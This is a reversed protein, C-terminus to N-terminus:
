RAVKMCRCGCNSFAQMSIVPNKGHLTRDLRYVSRHDEPFLWAHFSNKSNTGPAGGQHYHGLWIGVERFMQAEEDAIASMESSSSYVVKLSPSDLVM